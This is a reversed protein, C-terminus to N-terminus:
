KKGAKAALKAEKRAKGKLRGGTKKEEEKKEAQLPEAAEEGAEKVGLKEWGEVLEAAADGAAEGKKKEEEEWVKKGFTEVWVPSLRAQVPLWVMMCETDRKEYEARDAKVYTILDEADWHMGKGEVAKAGTELGKQFAAMHADLYAVHEEKGRIIIDLDRVDLELRMLERETSTAEKAAYIARVQLGIGEYFAKDKAQVARQAPYLALAEQLVEKASPTTTSSSPM